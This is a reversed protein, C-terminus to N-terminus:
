VSSAPAAGAEPVFVRRSVAFLLYLTLGLIVLEGVLTCLEALLTVVDMASVWATRSDLETRMVPVGGQPAKLFLILLRVVEVVMLLLSIAIGASSAWLGVWLTRLVRSWSPRQEPEAALRRGIRTYRYSWFTTFVLVGLGVFALYDFFGLAVRSGTMKGLLAYAILSLPLIALAAQIWFGMWGLRSFSKAIRQVQTEDM